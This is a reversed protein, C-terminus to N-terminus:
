LLDSLLPAIGAHSGYCRSAAVVLVDHDHNCEIDHFIPTQSRPTTCGYLLSRAILDVVGIRGVRDSETRGKRRRGVSQHQERPGPTRADTEECNEAVRADSLLCGVIRGLGAASSSARRATAMVPQAWHPHPSHSILEGVGFCGSRAKLLTSASAVLSAHLCRASIAM